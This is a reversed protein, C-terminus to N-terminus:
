CVRVIEEHDNKWGFQFSV